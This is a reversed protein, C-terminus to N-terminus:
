HNLSLSTLKLHMNWRTSVISQEAIVQRRSVEVIMHKIDKSVQHNELKIETVSM